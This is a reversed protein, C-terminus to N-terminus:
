VICQSHEEISVGNIITKLKYFRRKIWSENMIISSSGNCKSSEKLQQQQHEYVLTYIGVIFLNIVELFLGLSLAFLALTLGIPHIKWSIIGIRFFCGSVFLLTAIMLYYMGMYKRKEDKTLPPEELFGHLPKMNWCCIFKTNHFVELM